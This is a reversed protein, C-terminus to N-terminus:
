ANEKKGFRLVQSVPITLREAIIELRDSEKPTVTVQRTKGDFDRVKLLIHRERIQKLLNREASTLNPLTNM